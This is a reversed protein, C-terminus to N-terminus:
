CRGKEISIIDAKKITLTSGNPLAYRISLKFEKVVGTTLIYARGSPTWYMLKMMTPVKSEGVIICLHRLKDVIFKLIRHM